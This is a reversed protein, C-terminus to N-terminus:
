MCDYTSDVKVYLRPDILIKVLWEVDKVQLLGLVAVALDAEVQPQVDGDDVREPLQEDAFLETKFIRM